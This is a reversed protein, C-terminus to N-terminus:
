IGKIFVTANQTLFMTMGASLNNINNVYLTNNVTFNGTGYFTLNYNRIDCVFNLWCYQSMNVDWNIPSYPCTCSDQEFQWYYVSSLQYAVSLTPDLVVEDGDEYGLKDFGSIRLTLEYPNNEDFIEEITLGMDILDNYDFRQQYILFYDHHGFNVLNSPTIKQNSILVLNYVDTAKDLKLKVEFKYVNDMLKTITINPSEKEPIASQSVQQLINTTEKYLEINVDTSLYSMNFGTTDLGKVTLSQSLSIPEIIVKEPAIVQTILILLFLGLCFGIIFASKM